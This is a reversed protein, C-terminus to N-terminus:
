GKVGEKTMPRAPNGIVTVGPPVDKTVVAGIGVVAGRGITLPYGSRGQKLVAGTGIYVYDEIVINGNCKVSPAFTVYDGIVCDHGVYSYINAHFYSGIKVNSTITSFPSLVAGAQIINDDMIVVNEAKITFPIAGAELFSMVVKERLQPNGTAVNFYKINPLSLFESQLMVPYGNVCRDSGARDVVFVLDVLHILLAKQLTAQALPIIERGYGGDGVIGYYIKM